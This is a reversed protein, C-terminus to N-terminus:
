SRAATKAPSLERQLALSLLAAITSSGISAWMMVDYSGRADLAVGGLWAGHGGLHQVMIAFGCITGLQPNGFANHMAIVTLPATMLFTIGFVLTFM